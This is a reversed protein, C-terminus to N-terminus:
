DDCQQLYDLLTPLAMDYAETGLRTSMLYWGQDSFATATVETPAALGPKAMINIKMPIRGRGPPMLVGFMRTALRSGIRATLADETQSVIKGGAETIRLRLAAVAEASGSEVTWTKTVAQTRVGM